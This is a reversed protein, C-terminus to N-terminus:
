PALVERTHQGLAPAPTRLAAPTASLRYPVTPYELAGLVPHELRAFYQRFAYQPSAKLDQADNAAVMTLGLAQAETAIREKDRGKLWAAVHQRCLAVREPTCDRELWNPAFDKMWDPHGMLKGLAEWHAPASMWLYAYGDRCEFIGAPGHLDYATRHTGVNMDGAVMQALVYDARSAMVAQKSVDIVRGLGTAGRDVLAAAVCLAADLGAEYSVLFRGAGKLPVQSPQAGSPTHYGWGSAHFVNLDEAHRREEPPSAGYATIACLVLGPHRAEITAPDLGVSALWGDAHDDIVVDVRELLQALTARGADSTVDFAVSRKNTNLYAFLASTEGAPGEGAFPGMGRTASGRGPAELKIVDAGFDALLKGCYEGAVGDALELVRFTKLAM